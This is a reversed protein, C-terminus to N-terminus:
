AGGPAKGARERMERNFAEARARDVEWTEVRLDGHTFTAVAGGPEIVGFDLITGNPMRKIWAVKHPSGPQEENTIRIRMTM